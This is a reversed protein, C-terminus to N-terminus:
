TTNPVVGGMQTTRKLALSSITQPRSSPTSSPTSGEVPTGAGGARMDTAPVVVGVPAAVAAMEAENTVFYGVIGAAISMM